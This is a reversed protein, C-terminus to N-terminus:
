FDNEEKRTPKKLVKKEEKKDAEEWKIIFKTKDEKATKNINQLTTDKKFLGFEEKLISKLNQKEIKLDQKVNQIASKSDYKIKPNDVTGKMSLFINTRGLGDDAVEGFEDNEKKAKKAKKALLENLSLKIKYDIDNNFSHTGSTTFNLANSKIEMKPITLINNKIEIQNKLTAFHLNELEKLEIFRSLKKMTEVNNLEGNEITMDIGAYLKDMDIELEPSFVSAFQIKATCIGNINKDIISAQGFNEFTTFMKTINIKNVDSFCTILLKTSDSGDIFGSATINGNMTHLTLPDITMIKDKLKICGKINNAEFKRFKLHEIESNLNVNIHESFRLKYKSKSPLKQAHGAGIDVPFQGDEKNALLENLDINKSNLSAVVMIDQNKKLIFGISNKFVGRLNFDSNSVNGKLVTVELDNNNFIFDGNINTFLLLNNKLKLNMNVIKLSGSTTVNQYNTSNFEKEEGTFSADMKLQGSVSEITDINIFRQLKELSIDAKIKAIMSPNNLNRLSLEGSLTGQDIAASFPILELYSNKFNDKAGNSYRGKLNVNHLVINDKMQIIDANKIGFDAKIEPTKGRSLSGQVTCDFYFGGTSEYENIKGKYQNPILSLVSKIDMNQGRIGFNVIPEKYSNIINGFIEFVLNEIKIKSNKIKYSLITNDIDLALDAHINKKRLYISEDIKIQNVILDSVTELSYKENSFKGSLTSKNILVDINQKVKNDKFYVRVKTLVIKELEFSFTTLSTDTSSKWFHFNDAGNKDIHIKLVVDDIKIKKVRYNKKFIDILNFQFSIKGAKFLTDKNKNSTVELAKVNKFDVSALPFNKFVTFDIDKGNIIIKTNLQNNLEKIAYEKVEDQYYYAVVSGAGVVFAFLIFVVLIIRWLIRFPQPSKKLPVPPNIQNENNM